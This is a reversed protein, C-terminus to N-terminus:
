VSKFGQVCAWREQTNDHMGELLGLLRKELTPLSDPAISPSRLLQQINFSDVAIILYVWVVFPAWRAHMM